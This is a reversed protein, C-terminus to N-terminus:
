LAKEAEFGEQAAPGRARLPRSIWKDIWKSVPDTIAKGSGSQNRLKSIGRAGAGIGVTFM